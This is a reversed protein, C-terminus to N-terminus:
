SDERCASLIMQLRDSEQGTLCDIKLGSHEHAIPLAAVLDRRCTTNWNEFVKGSLGRLRWIITAEVTALRTTDEFPVYVFRTRRADAVAYQLTEDLNERISRFYEHPWGDRFVRGDERYLTGTCGLFDSYHMALRKSFNQTKGVYLLTKGEFGEYCRFFIYVAPSRLEDVDSKTIPLSGLALPGRWELKVTEM